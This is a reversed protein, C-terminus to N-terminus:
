TGISFSVLSAKSSNSKGPLATKLDFFMTARPKIDFSLSWVKPLIPIVDLVKGKQLQNPKTGLYIDFNKIIANAEANWPDSDYVTVNSLSIAKANLSSYVVKKDIIIRYEHQNGYVVPVQEIIVSTYRYLPLSDSTFCSKSYVPFCFQISTKGTPFWLALTTNQPQSHNNMNLVKLVNAYNSRGVKGLPM